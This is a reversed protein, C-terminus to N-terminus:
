PSRERQGSAAFSHIDLLQGYLRSADLVLMPEKPNILQRSVVSYPSKAMVM